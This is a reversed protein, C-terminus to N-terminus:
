FGQPVLGLTNIAANVEALADHVKMVEEYNWFRLKGALGPLGTAEKKIKAIRKQGTLATSKEHDLRRTTQQM